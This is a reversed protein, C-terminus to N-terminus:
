EISPGFEEGAGGAAVAVGPAPRIESLGGAPCRATAKKVSPCFEPYFHQRCVARTPRTARDRSTGGRYGVPPALRGTRSGTRPPRILPSHWKPTPPGAYQLM